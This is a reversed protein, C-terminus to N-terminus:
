QQLGLAGHAPMAWSDCHFRPVDFVFAMLYADFVAPETSFPQDDISLSLILTSAKANAALKAAPNPTAVPSPSGMLTDSPPQNVM